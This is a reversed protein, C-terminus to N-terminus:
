NKLKHIAYPSTLTHVIPFDSAVFTFLVYFTLSLSIASMKMDNPNNRAESSSYDLRAEAGRM